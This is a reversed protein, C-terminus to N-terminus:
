MVKKQEKREAKLDLYVVGNTKNFIEALIDSSLQVPAYPTNNLLGAVQMIAEDYTINDAM